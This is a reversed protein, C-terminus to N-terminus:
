KILTEPMKKKSPVNSAHRYPQGVMSSLFESVMAALITLLGNIFAARKLYVIKKDLCDM